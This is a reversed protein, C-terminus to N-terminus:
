IDFEQFKKVFGAFEDTKYNEKEEGYHYLWMKEKVFKTLTNLDDYHAHVHSKFPLTECDHFILSADCYFKVLQYPCFQTDTTIFTRKVDLFSGSEEEVNNIMLGYSNKFKYGSMVHITQVPAFRYNEWIFSSNVAVPICDFYDTLNMVKGEISELGGKLTNEWLETMLEPVCFLKPRIAKGNEDLKPMFYRSFAFFELGGVHDAHLHSIYIGDINKFDEKLEDRLIYPATLGFDLLLKSGSDSIFMMNSNGKSIPAFAGGVGLFKLKM